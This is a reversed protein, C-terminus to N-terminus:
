RGGFRPHQRASTKGDRNRNGGQLLFIFLMGLPWGILLAASQWRYAQYDALTHPQGQKGCFGLPNQGPCPKIPADSFGLFMSVLMAAVIIAQALSRLKKM